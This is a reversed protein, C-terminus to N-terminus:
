SCLTCLRRPCGQYSNAQSSCAYLAVTVVPRTGVSQPKCVLGNWSCMVSWSLSVHRRIASKHRAPLAPDELLLLSPLAQHSLKCVLSCLEHASVFRGQQRQQQLVFFVMSALQCPKLQLVSTPRLVIGSGAAGASLTGGPAPQAAATGTGGAVATPLAATSTSLAPIGTVASGDVSLQGAAGTEPLPATASRTSGGAALGAQLLQEQTCSPPQEAAAMAISHQMVTGQLVAVASYSPLAAAPAIGNGQSGPQQQPQQQQQLAQQPAQEPEGSGCQRSRKRSDAAAMDADPAEAEAAGAAQDPQQAPRGSVELQKVREELGIISGQQELVASALGSRM